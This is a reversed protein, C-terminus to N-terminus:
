GESMRIKKHIDDVMQTWIRFHKQKEAKREHYNDIEQVYAPYKLRPIPSQRLRHHNPKKNPLSGYKM